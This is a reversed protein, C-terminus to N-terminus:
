KKLQSHYKYSVDGYLRDGNHNGGLSNYIDHDNNIEEWEELTIVHNAGLLQKCKAKFGPGQIGLLGMKLLSLSENMSTLEKKIELDANNSAVVNEHIIDLIKKHEEDAFTKFEDALHEQEVEKERKQEKKYLSYFRKCLFGLVFVIASFLAEVWYKVIFEIM